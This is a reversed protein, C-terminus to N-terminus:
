FRWTHIRIHQPSANPLCITGSWLTLSSLCGRTAAIQCAHIVNTNREHVTSTSGFIIAVPEGDTDDCADEVGSAINQTGTLNRGDLIGWADRGPEYTFM